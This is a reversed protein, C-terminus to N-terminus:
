KLVIIEHHILTASMQKGKQQVMKKETTSVLFNNADEAPTVTLSSKLELV